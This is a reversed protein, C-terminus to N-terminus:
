EFYKNFKTIIKKIIDHPEQINEYFTANFDKPRNLYSELIKCFRKTDYISDFSRIDVIKEM